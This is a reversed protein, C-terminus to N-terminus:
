RSRGESEPQPKDGGKSEDVPRTAPQGAGEQEGEQKPEGTVEDFVRYKFIGGVETRLEWQKGKANRVFVGIVEVHGESFRASVIDGSIIIFHELRWKLNRTAGPSSIFDEDKPKQMALILPKVFDYIVPKGAYEKSYSPPYIDSPNYVTAM